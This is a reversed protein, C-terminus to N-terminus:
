NTTFTKTIKNHQCFLYLIQSIEHKLKSSNNGAKKISIINFTKNITQKSNFKKIRKGEKVKEDDSELSSMDDAIQRRLKLREAITKKHHFNTSLFGPKDKEVYKKFFNLQNNYVTSANGIVDDIGEDKGSLYDCKLENIENNFENLMKYMEDTHTVETLFNSSFSKMTGCRNFNYKGYVLDEPNMSKDIEVYKRGARQTFLTFCKGGKQM